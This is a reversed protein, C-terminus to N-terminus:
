LYNAFRLWQEWWSSGELFCFARNAAWSGGLKDISFLVTSTEAAFTVPDPLYLGNKAPAPARGGLPCDPAEPKRSLSVLMRAGLM